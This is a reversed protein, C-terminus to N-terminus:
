VVLWTTLVVTFFVAVKALDENIIRNVKRSFERRDGVLADFVEQTSTELHAKSM